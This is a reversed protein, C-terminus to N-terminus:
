RSQWGKNSSTFSVLIYLQSRDLRLELMCGGDRVAHHAKKVESPLSFPKARFLHLWLDWHPEIELYGEYVTAYITM